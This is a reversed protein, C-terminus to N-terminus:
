QGKAKTKARAQCERVLNQFDSRGRLSNLSSDTKLLDLDNWGSEMARRLMEIARVRYAESQDDLNRESLEAYTCSANYLVDGSIAAGESRNAGHRDAEQVLDRMREVYSQATAKRATEALRTDKEVLHVSVALFAGARLYEEPGDPFIRMLQEAVKILDAHEGLEILTEALELYDGRLEDLYRPHRPTVKLAAQRHSVGLEVLPRAEKPKGRMRQVRALGRLTGGLSNQYDPVAPFEAAV